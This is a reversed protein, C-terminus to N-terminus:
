DEKFHREHQEVEALLRENTYTVPHIEEWNTVLAPEETPRIMRRWLGGPTRKMGRPVKSTYHLMQCNYMKHLKDTSFHLEKFKQVLMDELVIRFAWMVEGHCVVLTKARPKTLALEVLFMNVRECVEAMTEGGEPRWYFPERHFARLQPMFLRKREKGSVGELQGWDREVLHRNVSWAANPLGLLVATEKARMYESVVFHTPVVDHANLWRGAALPQARGKASLRLHYSHRDAYLTSLSKEDGLEDRRNAANGESEGHRMILLDGEALM